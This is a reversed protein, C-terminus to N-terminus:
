GALRIGHGELWARIAVEAALTDACLLIEAPVFASDSCSGSIIVAPRDLGKRIERTGTGRATPEERIGIIAM